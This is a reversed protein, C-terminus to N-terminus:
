PADVPQLTSEELVDICLRRLVLPLPRHDCQIAFLPIHATAQRSHLAELLTDATPISMDVIIVAKQDLTRAQRYGDLVDKARRALDGERLAVAALRDYLADNTTVILRIM